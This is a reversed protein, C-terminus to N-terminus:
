CAGSGGASSAPRRPLGFRRRKLKLTRSFRSFITCVLLSGRGGIPHCGGAPAGVVGAALGEGTGGNPAAGSSFITGGGTGGTCATLGTLSSGTSAGDNGNDNPGSWSAGLAASDS